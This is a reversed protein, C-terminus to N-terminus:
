QPRMAGLGSLFEATLRWRGVPHETVPLWARPQHVRSGDSSGEDWAWRGTEDPWVLQWVPVARGRYFQRATGFFAERWSEDIPRLQVEVEDIVGPFPVGEAPWGATRVIDACRNLWSQMADGDLGFMAIEPLRFSHWLGVTYAFEVDGGAVRLACWGHQRVIAATEDTPGRM